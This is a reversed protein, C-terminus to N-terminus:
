SSLEKELRAIDKKVGVEPWLRVAEKFAALAAEKSGELKEIFIAGAKLWKARVPDPMDLLYLDDEGKASIYTDLAFFSDPEVPSGLLLSKAFEEAIVCPLTRKFSDLMAFDHKIAFIALEAARDLNGTDIHWLVCTSFIQDEKNPFESEMVGDIWADFAPLIETKLKSKGQISKIGRLQSEYTKLQFLLLEYENRAGATLEGAREDSAAALKQQRRRTFPSLCTM